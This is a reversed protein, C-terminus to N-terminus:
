VFSLSDKNGAKLYLIRAKEYCALAEDHKELAAQAYGMGSWGWGELDDNKIKAAKVRVESFLDIGEKFNRRQNAQYGKRILGVIEDTTPESQQGAHAPPSITAIAVSYFLVLAFFGLSRICKM